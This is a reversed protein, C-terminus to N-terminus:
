GDGSFNVMRILMLLLMAAPKRVWGPTSCAAAQGGAPPRGSSGRRMRKVADHSKKRLAHDCEAKESRLKFRPLLIADELATSHSIGPKM